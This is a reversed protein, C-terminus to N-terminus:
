AIVVRTHSGKRDIAQSPQLPVPFSRTHWAGESPLRLGSGPPCKTATNMTMNSSTNPPTEGRDTLGSV